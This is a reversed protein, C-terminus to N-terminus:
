NAPNKKQSEKLWGGLMRGIEQIDTQLILYKKEDIANIDKILRIFIKLLDLQESAIVLINIRAYNYKQNAKILQALFEIILHDCKAGLNYRDIKPLTRFIKDWLM